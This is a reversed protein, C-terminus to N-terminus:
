GSSRTGVQRANKKKKIGFATAHATINEAVLGARRNSANEWARDYAVDWANLLSM